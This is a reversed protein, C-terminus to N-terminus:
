ARPQTELRVVTRMNSVTKIGIHSATRVSTQYANPQIPVPGM